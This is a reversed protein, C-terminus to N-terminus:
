PWFTVAAFILLLGATLWRWCARLGYRDILVGVALPPALWPLLEVARVFPAPLRDYLPVWWAVMVVLWILALLAGRLGTAILCRLQLREFRRTDGDRLSRRGDLMWLFHMRREMQVIFQGSLSFLIVALLVWGLAAGQASPLPGGLLPLRRGIMVAGGVGAIVASVKEGTFSTGVPLNGISILQYPLGVAMGTAPDGCVAGALIGAPLPQCFWTQALSTEDLSLIGALFALSAIMMPSIDGSAPTLLAWFIL